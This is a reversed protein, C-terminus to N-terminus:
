ASTSWRDDAELPSNWEPPVTSAIVDPDPSRILTIATSSGVCNADLLAIVESAHSRILTIAASSRGCGDDLLAIGAPSHPPAYGGLVAMYHALKDLGRLWDWSGSYDERDWKELTSRDCSRRGAYAENMSSMQM